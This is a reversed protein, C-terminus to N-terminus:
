LVGPTFVWEWAHFSRVFFFCLHESKKFVGGRAGSAGSRLTVYCSNLLLVRSAHEVSPAVASRSGWYKIAHARM